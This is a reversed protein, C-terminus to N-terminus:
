GFIAFDVSEDSIEVVRAGTSHATITSGNIGRAIGTFKNVGKATYLFEEDDIRFTGSDPFDTVAENVNVEDPVLFENDALGPAALTADALNPIVVIKNADDTFIRLPKYTPLATGVPLPIVQKGTGSLGAYALHTNYTSPKLVIFKCPFQDAKIHFETISSHWGYGIVLNGSDLLNKLM